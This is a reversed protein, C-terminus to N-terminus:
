TARRRISSCADRALVGSRRAAAFPDGDYKRWLELIAYPAPYHEPNARRAVQKRAQAAVFDRLPGLMLRQTLPLRRPDRAGRADAHARYERLGQAARGSGGIGHAQRAPADVARGSLMMDLAAAPGIRKPLWQVGHWTPM